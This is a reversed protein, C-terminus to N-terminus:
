PTQVRAGHPISLRWLRRVCLLLVISPAIPGLPLHWLTGLPWGLLVLVYIIAFALKEWARFGTDQAERILWVVALLVLMQDYILAVPVALLTAALLAAARLPLSLGRRWILAVLM